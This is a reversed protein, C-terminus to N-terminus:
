ASTFRTADLCVSKLEPCVDSSNMQVMSMVSRTGSQVIVWRSELLHTCCRLRGRSFTPGRYTSKEGM